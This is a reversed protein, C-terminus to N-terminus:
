SCVLRTAFRQLTSPMAHPTQIKESQNANERKRLPVYLMKTDVSVSFFLSTPLYSFEPLKPSSARMYLMGRAAVMVATLSPDRQAITLSVKVLPVGIPVLPNFSETCILASSLQCEKREFIWVLCVKLTNNIMELNLIAVSFVAFSPSALVLTGM